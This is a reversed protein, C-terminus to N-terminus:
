HGTFFLPMFSRTKKYTKLKFWRRNKIREHANIPCQQTHTVRNFCQKSEAKSNSMLPPSSPPLLLLVRITLDTICIQASTRHTKYDIM